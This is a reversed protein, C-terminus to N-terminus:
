NTPHDAEFMASDLNAVCSAYAQTDPDLGISACALRERYRIESPSAHSYPGAARGSTAQVRAPPGDGRTGHIRQVVCRDFAPDDTRVGNAECARRADAHTGSDSLRRVSHSLADVCAGEQSTGPGTGMVSRCIGHVGSSGEGYPAAPAAQAAGLLVSAAAIAPIWVRVPTGITLRM